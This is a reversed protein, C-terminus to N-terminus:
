KKCQNDLLNALYSSLSEITRIKGGGAIERPVMSGLEYQTALTYLASCFYVSDLDDPKISDFGSPVNIKYDFYSNPNKADDKDICLVLSKEDPLIQGYNKEPIIILDRSALTGPNQTVEATAGIECLAEDLAERYAATNNTYVTVDSCYKLASLFFEVCGGRADAIGLRLRESNKLSKIIALAANTCLRTKFSTSYFRRYGSHHPFVLKDSCLLKSRQSGIVRDTKDLRVQGSYSIYIIHRLTVGRARRVDIQIKDRKLRRAAARIGSPREPLKVSLATLM